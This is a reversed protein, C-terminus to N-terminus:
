AIEPKEEIHILSEITQESWFKPASSFPCGAVTDNNFKCTSCTSNKCMEKLINISEILTM